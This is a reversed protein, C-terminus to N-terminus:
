GNEIAYVSLQREIYEIVSRETVRLSGGIKCARFHGEAVLRYATRKSVGIKEALQDVRLLKLKQRETKGCVNWVNEKRLPM